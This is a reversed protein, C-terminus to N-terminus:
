CTLHLFDFCRRAHGCKIRALTRWRARVPHLTPFWMSVEEATSCAPTDGVPFPEPTWTHLVSTRGCSTAPLPPDSTSITAPKRNARTPQREWFCTMRTDPLVFMWVIGRKLIESADLNKRLLSQFTKKKSFFADHKWEQEIVNSTIQTKGSNSSRGRWLGQLTTLTASRLNEEAIRWLTAKLPPLMMVLDSSHCRPCRGNCHPLEVRM